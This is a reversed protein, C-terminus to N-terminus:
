IGSKLKSPDGCICLEQKGNCTVNSLRINGFKEGKCFKEIQKNTIKVQNEYKTIVTQKDSLQTNYEKDLVFYTVLGGVLLGILTTFIINKLNM